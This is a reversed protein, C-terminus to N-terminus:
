HTPKFHPDGICWTAGWPKAQQLTVRNLADESFVASVLVVSEWQAGFTKSELDVQLLLKDNITIKIASSNALHAVAVTFLAEKKDEQLYVPLAVAPRTYTSCQVNGPNKYSFICIFFLVLCYFIAKKLM